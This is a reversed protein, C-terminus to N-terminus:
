SQLVTTAENGAEIIGCEHSFVCPLPLLVSLPLRELSCDREFGLTRRLKSSGYSAVFSARSTEDNGGERRKLKRHCSWGKM